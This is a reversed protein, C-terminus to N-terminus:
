LCSKKVTFVHGCVTCAQGDVVDDPIDLCCDPCEGFEYAAKVPNASVPEDEDTDTQQTNLIEVGEITSHEFEIHGIPIWGGGKKVLTEAEEQTAAEVYVVAEVECKIDLKYNKNAM